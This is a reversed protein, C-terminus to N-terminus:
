ASVGSDSGNTFGNPSLPTTGNTGNTVETLSKRKKFERFKTQIFLAASNMEQEDDGEDGENLPELGTSSDVRTRAELDKILEGIQENSGVSNRKVM